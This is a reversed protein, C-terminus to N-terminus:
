NRRTIPADGGDEGSHRGRSVRQAFGNGKGRANTARDFADVAAMAPDRRVPAGPARTDMWKGHTGDLLKNPGLKEKRARANLVQQHGAANNQQRIFLAKPHELFALTEDTARSQSQARYALKLLREGLELSGGSVINGVAAANLKFFIADLVTAQMLLRSKVGRLSGDCVEKVQEVLGTLLQNIDVENGTGGFGHQWQYLSTAALNPPMLVANAIAQEPTEDSQKQLSLTGAVTAAAAPNKSAPVAVKSKRTAYDTSKQLRVLLDAEKTAHAHDIKSLKNAVTV